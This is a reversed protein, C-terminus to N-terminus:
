NRRLHLLPYPRGQDDVESRGTVEFGLHRYFALAAENQENVDVTTPRAAQETLLRGIGQGQAKTDVFLSDIKQGTLGMFAVPAGDMVAVLLPASGVYDAVLLDLEARDASSLFEHGLAVANRWIRLLVAADSPVNPRLEIM